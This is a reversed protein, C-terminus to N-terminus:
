DDPYEERMNSVFRKTVKDYRLFFRGALKMLADTPEDDTAVINDQAVYRNSKDDASPLV